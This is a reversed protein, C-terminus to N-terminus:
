LGRDADGPDRDERKKRRLKGQSGGSDGPPEPQEGGGAAAPAEKQEPASASLALKNEKKLKKIEEECWALDLKGSIKLNQLTFVFKQFLFAVHGQDVKGLRKMAVVEQGSLRVVLTDDEVALEMPVSDGKRPFWKTPIGSFKPHPTVSRAIVKGNAYKSINNFFNTELYSRKDANIRVLFKSQSTLLNPIRFDFTVRSDGAVPFRSTWLAARSGAFGVCALGPLPPAKDDKKNKNNKDGKTFFKKNVGNPEANKEDLIAAGKAIFGKEMLGPGDFTVEFRDGDLLKLKGGFIQSANLELLKKLPLDGGTEEAGAVDAGSIACTLITSIFFRM